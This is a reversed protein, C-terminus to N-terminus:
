LSRFGNGRATPSRGRLLGNKNVIKVNEGVIRPALIKQMNTKERDMAKDLKNYAADDGLAEAVRLATLTELYASMGHPLPIVPTTDAPCIYDGVSLISTQEETITSPVAGAGFSIVNGAVNTVTVDYSIVNHGQKGRVFDIVTGTDISGPVMSVTVDDGTISTVTACNQVATLNGVKFTYWFELEYGTLSSAPAPVLTVSDGSFYFGSPVTGTRYLHEEEVRYLLLSRAQSPNASTSGPWRIKLDRLTQGSARYPVLYSSQDGVIDFRERKLMFEQRIAQIAPVLELSIVDDAFAFIDDDDMLYQNDPVSLRRKVGSLLRDSTYSSV